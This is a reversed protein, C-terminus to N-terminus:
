YKGIMLFLDQQSIEAIMVIMWQSNTVLWRSFPSNTSTGSCCTGGGIMTDSLRRVFAGTATCAAADATLAAHASYQPCTSPRYISLRPHAAV